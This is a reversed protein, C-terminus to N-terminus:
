KWRIAQPLVKVINSISSVERSTIRTERNSVLFRLHNRGFIYPGPRQVIQGSKGDITVVFTTRGDGETGEPVRRIVNDLDRIQSM